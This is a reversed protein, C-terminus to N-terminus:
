SNKGNAGQLVELLEQWMAKTSVRGEKGRIHEKLRDKQELGLLKGAVDVIRRADGKNIDTLLELLEYDDMVSDDLEYEFGSETRGKIM